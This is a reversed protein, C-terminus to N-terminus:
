KVNTERRMKRRAKIKGLLGSLYMALVILMGFDLGLGTSAIKEYISGPTDLGTSEIAVFAIMGVIAIVTLVLLRGKIKKNIAEAYDSLSLVTEKVEKEMIESKREGNIIEPISVDFIEAIDVLLSIDPMNTGTEWRSVTRGSVNLMEAFEEQTIGKEKRLEKLFKGIKKQDM